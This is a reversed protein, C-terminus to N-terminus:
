ITKNCLALSLFIYAFSFADAWFFTFSITESFIYVFLELYLTLMSDMALYFYRAFIFAIVKILIENSKLIIIVDNGVKM